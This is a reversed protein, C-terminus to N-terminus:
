QGWTSMFEVQVREEDRKSENAQLRPAAWLCEGDQWGTLAGGVKRNWGVGVVWPRGGEAPLWGGSSPRGKHRGSSFLPTCFHFMIIVTLHIHAFNFNLIAFYHITFQKSVCACDCVHLYILKNIISRLLIL